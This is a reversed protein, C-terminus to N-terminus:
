RRGRRRLNRPISFTIVTDDGCRMTMDEPPEGIVAAWGEKEAKAKAADAEAKRIKYCEPCWDGSKWKPGVKHGLDCLRAPRRAVTRPKPGAQKPPNTTRPM